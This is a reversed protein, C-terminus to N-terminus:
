RGRRTRPAVLPDRLALAACRAVLDIQWTLAAMVRVPAEGQELLGRATRLAARRRGGRDRRHPRVRQPRRSPARRRPRARRSRGELLALKTVEGAFGPLDDGFMDVLAGAVDGRVAVGAAALEQAVWRHAPRLPAHARGAPRRARRWRRQRADTAAADVVIGEARRERVGPATALADIVANREATHGTGVFAEDLDVFLAVRGFLGGQGVAEAVRTTPAEDLRVVELTSTPPACTPSRWAGRGPAGPLSRGAFVRLV